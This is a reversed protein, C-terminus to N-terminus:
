RTGGIEHWWRQLEARAVQGPATTESATRAAYVFPAGACLAGVRTIASLPGMGMVVLPEDSDLLGLLRANDRPTNVLCAVKFLDAQVKRLGEAIRASLFEVTPTEEFNHYSAIVKCGHERASSIIRELWAQDSDDEVDVYAAGSEIATELLRARDVDRLQGPRCTAILRSKSRFVEQVEAKSLNTLDLRIEAFACERTAALLESFSSLALSVCIM